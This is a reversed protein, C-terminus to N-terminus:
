NKPPHTASGPQPKAWEPLVLDARRSEPVVNLGIIKGDKLQCEVTTNHPAHLKFDVDWQRPWAPLLLIDGGAEGQLLMLNTTEMLNGGHNQDPLWDYNPGWTAPWRYAGNSNACKGKLIQAAEDSLGLLAACNSDYGWGNPLRNGRRAYAAKGEALWEPRSLSVERYPWIPYVEPNECNDRKPNYKEAPALKRVNGAMEMPIAPCAALMKALFAQQEPTALGPPLACLRRTINAIGAVAPTDNVVGNWYSEVAQTPDIVLKGQADKKFRTDFYRLVSVAMPLLQQKLFENDQTYDWRDLMLAVLETGPNWNKGVYSSQVDKPQKGTRDWGYDGGGYTGYVNMTEPFYAGQAGHYKAARAEALARVNEYMRFLPAMLEFDGCALMPHYMHRTNQWWYCDGWARWDANPKPQKLYASGIYPEVSFFGGNFKIPYAGRGQFGLAYRQLIYGRTISDGRAEAGLAAVPKGDLYLAMEGTIGDVTAAVHQWLGTKLRAALPSLSREGVILRLTDGPLTDLLFGDAGGPTCKDFIRGATLAAPHIWASLTFGAQGPPMAPEFKGASGGRGAAFLAAVQAASCAGAQVPQPEIEGAFRTQGSADMGVRLPHDNAPIGSKSSKIFVHSRGWFQAWWARTRTLAVAADLSKDAEQQLGARWEAVTASQATHTALRLDLRTQPAATTLARPGAAIFGAGTLLGGFTRHLLPDIAGNAGSLSQNDFVKPAFSVENRHYWAVGNEAAALFVDASEVRPFPAGLLSWCSIDEGIDLPSDRWSEVTATAVLAVKSEGTVHLVQADSDVFVSLSVGGGSVAVVGDRLHVEQRFDGGKLLPGGELHLRLRGLKCFRGTEALADTRALLLLLDGTAKEVWANVVVEGNGLPMSGSSDESPSDWRVNVEDLAAPASPAPPGAAAALGSALCLLAALEIATSQKSLPFKM